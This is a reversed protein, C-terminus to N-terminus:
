WFYVQSVVFFWVVDVFHWYISAAKVFPKNVKGAFAPILACAFIGLGVLVHSGHFGTLSFFSTSYINTKINFGKHMLESWEYASLGLFTAGLIITIILWNLFGGKSGPEHELNKEAMHITISSAVLIATMILPITVPMDPTGAPPWVPATLRTAWYAAFFGIFLMAEAVVFIPMAWVSHGESYGHADEMGEKVWGIISILTLPAGIGLTIASIMPNKYVFYFIFSLPALFLVGISLALPWVSTHWSVEHQIAHEHM